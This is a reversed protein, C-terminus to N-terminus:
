YRIEVYGASGASGALGREADEDYGGGAGGNGAGAGGQSVSSSDTWYQGNSGKAGTTTNGVGGAGGVGSSAGGVGGPANTSNMTSTVGTGGTGPVGGGAGGAGVTYSISQGATVTVNGTSIGGEGGGGGLQLPEENDAAGGGGGGGGKLTYTLSTIGYPVTFSRTGAVTDRFTSHLIETMSCNIVVAGLDSDSNITITGSKSGATGTAIYTATFTAVAGPAITTPVKAYTFKTGTVSTVNLAQNGINTIRISQSPLTSNNDYAFNLTTVASARSYRQLVSVALAISITTDGLTGTNATLTVSGSKSGTSAGATISMSFSKTTGPAVTIQNLTTPEGGFTTWDYGVTFGTVSSAVAKVILDETGNNSINVTQSSSTESTYASYSATTPSATGVAVPTPYVKKWVGDVKTWANQVPSWAGKDKIWLGKLSKWTGSDKIRTLGSRPM